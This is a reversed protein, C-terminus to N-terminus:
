AAARGSLLLWVKEPTVPMDIHTIGTAPQLADVCANVVTALAGVTGAEGAGKIGLPNTTCPVNRLGLKFRPVTDARPLCYDMLTGTLLQGTEDYRAHEYLAQGIGQVIGGHVQGALLLPNIVAGFDDVVSYAVVEVVGTEPDIEVECVHCGNPYTAEPPKFSGESDLGPSEGEPLRAPDRALRALEFLEIRWNSGPIEFCGDHYELDEEAVGLEHAALRRGKDLVLGAANAVAAGGVPVSRSGGTYGPPTRDTDGQVVRIREADIGLRESLIQTFATEHGQGNSQSGSYVTVTDDDNFAVRAPIPAGGGCREVYMALGHGRLRGRVASERRRTEFGTWDAAELAQDMLAEFEGSDYVCGYATRFPMAEAPIFNRRRLTDPALGLERAAADLLREIVYNGEPRGAGRYADIPVTHTLVGRVRYHIAPIAYCGSLMPACCDTPIFPAYNSLYAGMNARTDVRMALMRGQEDFAAEAHTRHDRGHVDSLMAESREPTYRVARRLRRSAWVLAAHEPYVFVKMGFGGGVDTTVCRLQSKDIPLVRGPLVGHLFAPGQTSSYLTSRGSDPDYEALSCRTEMSCAIVRNNILDLAVRRAAQEFAADVAAVDGSAWDFVRNGAVVEHVRPADESLAVDPDAVADLPEFDVEILELADRAALTTEAVVLALAEGVHRVRDRALVPWPAEARDSGDRNKLPILCPIDKVGDAALEAGTAVLLVGPAARAATTDIARILAHAHPSRLFQVHACGPAPLDDTYRGQGTLLRQDEVRTVAQGIGFKM